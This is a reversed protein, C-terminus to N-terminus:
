IHQLQELYARLFLLAVPHQPLTLAQQPTFFEVRQGENCKVKNLPTVLEATFAHYKGRYQGQEETHALLPVLHTMEIEFEERMERVIAQEPTEGLEMAGGPCGCWMGPCIIGPKDDRLQCLIRGDPARVIAGVTMMM